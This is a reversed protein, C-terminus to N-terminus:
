DVKNGVQLGGFKKILGAELWVRESTLAGQRKRDHQHGQNGAEFGTNLGFEVGKKGMEDILGVEIALDACLCKGFGFFLKRM